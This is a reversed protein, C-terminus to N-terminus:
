QAETDPPKMQVSWQKHEGEVAAHLFAGLDRRATVADDYPALHAYYRLAHERLTEAIVRYRLWNTHFKFLQQIGEAVVIAAGVCATLVAPAHSAALVTVVAALLLSAVKLTQYSVRNRSAQRSFLSFYADLEQWVLDSDLAGGSPLASGLRKWADDRAPPPLAQPSSQGAGQDV